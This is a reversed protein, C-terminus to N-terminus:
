AADSDGAEAMIITLADSVRVEPNVSSSTTAAGIVHVTDRPPGSPEYPKEPEGLWNIVGQLQHLKARAAQMRAVAERLEQRADPLKEEVEARWKERNKDILARRETDLDQLAVRLADRKRTAGSLKAELELVHERGPDPKGDRLAKAYAANDADQAAARGQSLRSLEAETATYDAGLRKIQADVKVLEPWDFGQSKLDPSKYDLEGTYRNFM